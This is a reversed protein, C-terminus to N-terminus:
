LKQGVAVNAAQELQRRATVDVVSAIVFTGAGIQMSNLTIEVPFESGDHRRGCLTQESGLTRAEPTTDLNQSHRAYDGLFADPLLVDAPQNILETRCYGFQREIQQNILVIAGDPNVVLMGHPLSEAALQLVQFSDKNPLGRATDRGSAPIQGFRSEVDRAHNTSLQSDHSSVRAHVSSVFVRTQSTDVTSSSRASTVRM